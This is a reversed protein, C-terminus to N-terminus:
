EKARGLALVFYTARNQGVNRWGHMENSNVYAISGPSLVSSKGEITVEMTGDKIFIMEEHVHRHAGHPAKGPALETIHVEVPYSAHTEGDLVARSKNEGNVKVPLDEFIYTKSPLHKSQGLALGAGFAALILGSKASIKM